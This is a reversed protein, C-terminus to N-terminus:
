ASGLVVRRPRSRCSITTRRWLSWASFRLARVLRAQIVRTNNYVLLSHAPIYDGVRFFRDERVEGDKYILLKSHDREPLPYKAIREDPLPYNYDSISLVM